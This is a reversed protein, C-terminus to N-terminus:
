AYDATPGEQKRPRVRAPTRERIRAADAAPLQLLATLAAEGPEVPPLQEFAAALRRAIQRAGAVSVGCRGALEAAGPTSAPRDAALVAAIWARLSIRSGQLVTGALVSFQQRCAGCKWVRRATSAGTRTARSRGAAPRLFYCPGPAGCKPCAPPAGGWRLRELLEYAAAETAPSRPM